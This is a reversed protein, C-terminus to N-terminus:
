RHTAAPLTPQWSENQHSRHIVVASSIARIENTRMLERVNLQGDDTKFQSAALDTLKIYLDACRPSIGYAISTPDSHGDDLRIVAAMVCDGWAKLAANRNVTFADQTSCGALVAAALGIGVSRKM